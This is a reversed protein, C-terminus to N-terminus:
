TPQPTKSAKSTKLNLRHRYNTKMDNKCKDKEKDNFAKM